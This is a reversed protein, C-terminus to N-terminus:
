ATVVEAKWGAVQLAAVFAGEDISSGTVAIQKSDLDVEVQAAPDAEKITATVGKACGGCNMNGIAIRAMTTVEQEEAPCIPNGMTPLDLTM